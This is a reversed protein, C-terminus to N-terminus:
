DNLLEVRLLNIKQIIESLAYIMNLSHDIADDEIKSSQNEPVTLTDTWYFIEANVTDEMQNLVAVRCKNCVCKNYELSFENLKEDITKKISKLYQKDETSLGDWKVTIKSEHM